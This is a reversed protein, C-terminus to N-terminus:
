KAQGQPVLPPDISPVSAPAKNDAPQAPQPAPQAAPATATENEFVTKKGSSLISLTLAGVIFLVAFLTTAKTMFDGSSPGLISDSAGGMSGLGGKGQQLMILIILIVCFLVYLVTVFNM